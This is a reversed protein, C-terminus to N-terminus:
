LKWMKFEKEFQEVNDIPFFSKYQFNPNKSRYFGDNCVVFCSDKNVIMASYDKVFKEIVDQASIKVSFEENSTGHNVWITKIENLHDIIEQGHYKEGSGSQVTGTYNVGVIEKVHGAFIHDAEKNIGLLKPDIDIDITQM